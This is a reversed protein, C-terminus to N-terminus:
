LYMYKKFFSSFLDYIYIIHLYYYSYYIFLTMGVYKAKPKLEKLLNDAVAIHENIDDGLPGEEREREEWAGEQDPNLYLEIMHILAEPGWVSDRRALNFERIATSVDNTYRAYLGKCYKLGAHALSRRDSKEANTLYNPVENLKGVRRLLIIIKELAHYNNPHSQLLSHLPRIAGEADNERFLVDSLMIAASEDGPDASLIKRCQLQCLDTENKRFHMMALSYMARVNELHHQIAENLYNSVDNYLGQEKRDERRELLWSGIKECIDSLKKRENELEVSGQSMTTRCENVVEKQFDKAKKLTGIVDNPSHIMQVESLLLLTQIDEKTDTMDKHQRHIAKELVRRASEMRGLKLYLRGLDHSLTITDSVLNGSTTVQSAADRLSGEYFDIARHYEHTAVLAQHTCM